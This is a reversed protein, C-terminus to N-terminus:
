RCRTEQYRTPHLDYPWYIQTIDGAYPFVAILHFICSREVKSFCSYRKAHRMNDQWTKITNTFAFENLIQRTFFKMSFESTSSTAYFSWFLFVSICFDKSRDGIEMQFIGVNKNQLSVFPRSFVHIATM